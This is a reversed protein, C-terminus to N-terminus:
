GSADPDDLDEQEEVEFVPGLSDKLERYFQQIHESESGALGFDNRIWYLMLLKGYAMMELIDQFGEPTTELSAGYLRDPHLGDIITEVRTIKDKMRGAALFPGEAQWSDGYVANKELILEEDLRHTHVSLISSLMAVTAGTIPVRVLDSM